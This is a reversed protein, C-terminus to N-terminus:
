AEKQLGKFHDILVQPVTPPHHIAKMNNEAVSLFKVHYDVAAKLSSVSYTGVSGFPSFALPLSEESQLNERSDKSTVEKKEIPKSSEILSQPFLPSDIRMREEQYETYNRKEDWDPLAHVIGFSEV